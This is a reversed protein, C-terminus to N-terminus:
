ITQKSCYILLQKILYKVPPRLISDNKYAAVLYYFHPISLSLVHFGANSPIASRPAFAACHGNEVLTFTSSLDDVISYVEPYKNTRALLRNYMTRLHRTEPPFAFPYVDIFHEPPFCSVNAEPPLIMLLEDEFFSLYELMSHGISATTFVAMSVSNDLLREKAEATEMPHVLIETQPYHQKMLPLVYSYYVPAIQPLLGISLRRIHQDALDELEALAQKKIQLITSAGSLYIKGADTLIMENHNRNFLKANVMKEAKALQQSLASQSIFLKKAALSLNKERSITIIYELQKTDM